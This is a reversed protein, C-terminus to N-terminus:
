GVRVLQWQQNAGNLDSRRVISGGARITLTLLSIYARRHIAALGAVKAPTHLLRSGHVKTSSPRRTLLHRCNKAFTEYDLRPATRFPWDSPKFTDSANRVMLRSINDNVNASTAIRRALETRLVIAATATATIRM